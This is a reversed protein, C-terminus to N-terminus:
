SQIALGRSRAIEMLERESAVDSAYPYTKVSKEFEEELRLAAQMDKKGLLTYVYRTRIVSPFHKMSQMFKHQEKTLCAELVEPRNEGLLECYIRDCLLMGRHLGVIGSDLDLLRQILADAEEFRHEDMLRNCAFVGLPAIMSNKMQEDNPVEFWDGPMDKIRVGKATLENAKMQVWFGRLADPHKKLSFANYGDNDVTGLRLPVGNILAFAFGIVAAMLFFVASLRFPLFSLGLFLAGVAVNMISGGLNYLVVPMKGDEMEPPIMLCQGGTGAISLRRLHLKGDEKVWMFSGIRFSSFRYGTLLGFALHGLEHAVLQVLFSIYMGLFLVVLTAIDERFTSGATVISDLHWAMLVGCVAGILMFVAVSVYQQWQIPKKKKHAM